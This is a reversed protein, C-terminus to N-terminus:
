SFLCSCLEPWKVSEQCRGVNKENMVEKMHVSLGDLLYSTEHRNEDSNNDLFREFICPIRGFVYKLELEFKNRKASNKVKVKKLSCM